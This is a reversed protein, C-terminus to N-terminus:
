LGLSNAAEDSNLPGAAGITAAKILRHALRYACAFVYPGGLSWGLLRVKDLELHNLLTEVDNVWSDLSFMGAPMVTSLGTGPRDPAIIRIQNKECYASAFEVDLRSSVGGHFYLLPKGAPDGFEAFGLKRGDPLRISLSKRNDNPM